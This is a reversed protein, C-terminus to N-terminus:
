NPGYRQRKRASLKLSRLVARRATTRVASGEAPSKQQLMVRAVITRSARLLQNSGIQAVRLSGTRVDRQVLKTMLHYSWVRDLLYGRIHGDVAERPLCEDLCSSLSHALKVSQVVFFVLLEKPPRPVSLTRSSYEIWNTWLLVEGLDKTLRTSRQM